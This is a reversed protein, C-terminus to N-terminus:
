YLLEKHKYLIIPGVKNICFASLSAPTLAQSADMPSASAVDQHSPRIVVTDGPCVRLYPKASDFPGSGLGYLECLSM